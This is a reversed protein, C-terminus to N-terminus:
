HKKYRNKHQNTKYMNVGFFCYWVICWPINDPLHHNPKNSATTTCYLGSDDDRLLITDVCLVTRYVRLM